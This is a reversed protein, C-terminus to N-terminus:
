RFDKATTITYSLMPPGYDIQRFIQKSSFYTYREREKTKIKHEETFPPFFFFFFISMSALMDVSM